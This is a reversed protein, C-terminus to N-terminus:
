PINVGTLPHPSTPTVIPGVSYEHLDTGCIGCFLVKVLVDDAAKVVPADVDEVRIDAKGHFRAARV